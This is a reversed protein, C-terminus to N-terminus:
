SNVLGLSTLKDDIERIQQDLVYQQYASSFGDRGRVASCFSMTLDAKKSLLRAVISDRLSLQRVTHTYLEKNINEREIIFTCSM